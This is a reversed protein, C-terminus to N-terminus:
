QQSPPDLDAPTVTTSVSQALATVGAASIQTIFGSRSVCLRGGQDSAVCSVPVGAQNDNGVFVGSTQAAM